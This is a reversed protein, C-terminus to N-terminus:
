WTQKKYTAICSTHAEQRFESPHLLQQGCIRCRTAISGRGSTEYDPNKDM